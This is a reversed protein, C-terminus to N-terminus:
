KELTKEESIISKIKAGCIPCIKINDKFKKRCGQCRGIWKFKRTIGSQSITEFKINLSHAVNQISYDDTLIISENGQKKIDLALAVIDIDAKSLRYSDGTEISINKVKKVSTESPIHISLGREKLIKFYQYDKGGPTIENSISPTTIIKSDDLNIQKGSLIASTDLLFVKSKKKANM